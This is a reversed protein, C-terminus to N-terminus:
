FIFLIISRVCVFVNYVCSKKKVKEKKKVILFFFLYLFITQFTTTVCQKTILQCILFLFYIFCTFSLWYYFILSNTTLIFNQFFFIIFILNLFSFCIRLNLFIIYLFCVFLFFFIILQNSIVFLFTLRSPLLSTKNSNGLSATTSELRPLVIRWSHFSIVTRLLWRM